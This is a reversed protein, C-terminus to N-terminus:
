ALVEVSVVSVSGTVPGNVTSRTAEVLAQVVNKARAAIGNEIVSATDEEMSLAEEVVAEITVGNLKSLALAAIRQWPVSAPITKEFPAAVNLDYEVVVAARGILGKAPAITKRIAKDIDIKSLALLVPIPIETQNM